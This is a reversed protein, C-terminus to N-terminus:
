LERMDDLALVRSAIEDVSRGTTDVIASEVAATLGEAAPGHPDDTVLVVRTVGSEVVAAIWSSVVADPSSAFAFTRGDHAAHDVLVACFCGLAAGGVHSDDSLDGLAVKVQAGRLREATSEESVFARTEGRGAAAAVIASGIETDAGVVITPMRSAYPRSALLVWTPTSGDLFGSELAFLTASTTYHHYAPRAPHPDTKGWEGCRTRRM